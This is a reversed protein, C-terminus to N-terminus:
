VYMAALKFDSQNLRSTSPLKSPASAQDKLVQTGLERTTIALHPTEQLTARFLLIDNENAFCPAGGFHGCRSYKGNTAHTASGSITYYAHTAGMKADSVPACASGGPSVSFLVRADSTILSGGGLDAWTEEHLAKGTAFAGHYCTGGLNKHSM